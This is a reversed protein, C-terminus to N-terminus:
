PAWAVSGSVCRGLWTAPLPRDQTVPHAPWGPM